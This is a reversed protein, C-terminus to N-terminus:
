YICIAPFVWHSESAKPCNSRGQCVCYFGDSNFTIPSRLWWYEDNVDRNGTLTFYTYTLESAFVEDSSLLFAMDATSEDGGGGGGATNAKKVYGICDKVDLPLSNIFSDRLNSDNLTSRMKSDEWGGANTNSDNMKASGYGSAYLLTLVQNYGNISRKESDCPTDQNIGLVIYCHGDSDYVTDGPHAVKSITGAKCMKQITAFDLSSLSSSGAEINNIKTSLDGIEEQLKNLKANTSADEFNGTVSDNRQGLIHAVADQLNDSVEATVPISNWVMAFILCFAVPVAFKRITQLFKGEFKKKKM